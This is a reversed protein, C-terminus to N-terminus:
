REQKRETKPTRDAGGSAPPPSPKPPNAFPLSPKPSPKPAPKPAAPPNAFTSTPSPNPSPRPTRTEAPPTKKPKAPERPDPRWVGGAPHPLHIGPRPEDIGPLRRPREIRKTTATTPAPPAGASGGGTDSIVTDPGADPEDKGGFGVKKLAWSGAAAMAEGGAQIAGAVKHRTLGLFGGMNYASQAAKAAKRRREVEEREREITRAEAERAARVVVLEPTTPPEAATEHVQDIESRVTKRLTDVAPSWTTHGKDKTDRDEVAGAPPPAAEVM